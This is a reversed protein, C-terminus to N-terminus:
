KEKVSFEMAQKKADKEIDIIIEKLKNDATKPDTSEIQLTYKGASLYKIETEKVKGLINKILELGNPKTTQLNIEKKIITKKQKQANIIEMIKESDKKGVLKELKKPNEKAEQLFEYLSEEKLIEKIIGEAKKELVSKLISKYSKEQKYQEKIEKQEKLTVRRLSLDIRDGSIRLVKCVIKKKPVVYDRLNRIRGPAIESMVISGEIEKGNLPIKVFVITGVIRDVTCLVIDGVEFTM